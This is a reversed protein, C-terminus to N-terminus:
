TVLCIIHHRCQYELHQRHGIVDDNVSCLDVGTCTSMALDSFGFVIGNRPEVLEIPAVSEAFVNCGVEDM